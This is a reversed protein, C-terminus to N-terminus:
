RPTSTQGPRELAALRNGLGAIRDEIRLAEGVLGGFCCAAWSTSRTPTAGRSRWTSVSCWPHVLGLGALVRDHMGLPCPPKGVLTGILTGALV